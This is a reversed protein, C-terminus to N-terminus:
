TYKQITIFIRGKKSKGSIESLRAKGHHRVTLIDKEKIEKDCKTCLVQNLFFKQSEIYEQAKSRSTKLMVAVVSDARLTSVTGTISEYSPTISVLAADTLTCKVYVGGVETLNEAVYGAITDACFVVCEEGNKVIDGVNKRELGLSLISGLFDPHKLSDVGKGAIRVAAIPFNECNEGFGIMVRGADEYGGFAKFSVSDIHKSRLLVQAYERESLFDTFMAIDKKLAAAAKDFVRALVEREEGSAALFKERNNM